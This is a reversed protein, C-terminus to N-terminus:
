KPPRISGLPVEILCQVCHHSDRHPVELQLQCLFSCKQDCVKIFHSMKQRLDWGNEAQVSLSDLRNMLGSYGYQVSPCTGPAARTTNEPKGSGSISGFFLKQPGFNGPFVGTKSKWPIKSANIPFFHGFISQKIARQPDFFDIKRNCQACFRM